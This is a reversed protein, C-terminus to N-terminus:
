PTYSGGSGGLDGYLNDTEDADIKQEFLTRLNRPLLNSATITYTSIVGSDSAALDTVNLRDVWKYAAAALVKTEFTRLRCETINGDDDYLFADVVQHEGLLGLTRKLRPMIIKSQNREVTMARGVLTDRKGVVESNTDSTEEDWLKEIGVGRVVQFYQCIASADGSEDYGVIMGVDGYVWDGASTTQYLTSDNPSYWDDMLPDVGAIDSTMDFSVSSMTGTHKVVMAPSADQELRFIRYEDLTQNTTSDHLLFKVSDGLAIQLVGQQNGFITAM